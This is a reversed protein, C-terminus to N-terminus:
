TARCSRSGTTPCTATAGRAAPPVPGRGRSGVETVMKKAMACRKSADPAGQDLAWAAQRLFVRAAELEIEMDALRFQLAQFEAIPRGFATREAMYAVTRDM